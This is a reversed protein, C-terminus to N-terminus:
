HDRRRPGTCKQVVLGEEEARFFTGLLSITVEVTQVMKVERFTVTATATDKGFFKELKNLKKETAARLADDVIVGRANITTKM